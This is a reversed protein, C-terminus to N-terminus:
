FFLERAEGRNLPLSVFNTREKKIIKLKGFIEGTGSNFVDIIDGIRLFNYKDGLRYTLVKTRNKVLPVLETAFGINKQEM